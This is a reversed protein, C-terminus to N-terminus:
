TPKKFIASNEFVEQYNNKLLIERETEGTILYAGHAMTNSIKDLIQKRSEPKYYFLLNSCVVLDFNGYISPTPCSRQDSLLDFYSFDLYSKLLPSVAYSDKNRIFYAHYRKLSVKNISNIGFIGMRAKSLENEDNDTGFIRFNFKETLNGNMEDLLIALSYSEQGSACAASWIRIEKERKKKKKAILLPLVLQELYAFTLPNRFFESYAIHLSDHLIEAESRNEKLLNFYDDLSLEGLASRRNALSKAVFTDDFASVKKGYSLELMEAINKNKIEM